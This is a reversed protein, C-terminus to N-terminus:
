KGEGRLVQEEQAEKLKEFCRDCICNGEENIEM